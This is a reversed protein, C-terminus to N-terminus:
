SFALPAFFDFTFNIVAKFAALQVFVMNVQFIFDLAAAILFWTEKQMVAGFACKTLIDMGLFADLTRSAPILTLFTFVIAILTRFSLISILVSASAAFDTGCSAEILM